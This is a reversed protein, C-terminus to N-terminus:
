GAPEVAVPDGVRIPGGAVVRAMVGIRGDASEKAKGQVREFRGCPTRPLTVEIVAEAGIRLRAGPALAAPDLGTLVLQEGLEGPAAKFGEARLRAVAEALLVNLQRRGRRGKADGAIGHGVVLAASEVAVRAYRGAPRAEIDAPTYAISAVSAM